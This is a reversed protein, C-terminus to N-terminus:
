LLIGETAPIVFNTVRVTSLDWVCASACDWGYYWHCRSDLRLKWDYPTVLIGGFEKKVDRWDITPFAFDVIHVRFKRSFELIEDSSKLVCWTSTDCEFPTAHALGELHFEEGECWERWGYGSEDSLWLGTPKRFPDGDPQPYSRSADFELPEESFHVLRKVDLRQPECVGGRGRFARAAALPPRDADHIGDL